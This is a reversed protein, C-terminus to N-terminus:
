ATGAQQLWIKEGNGSGHILICDTKVARFRQDLINKGTVPILILQQEVAVMIEAGKDLFFYLATKRNCLLGTNEEAASLKVQGPNLRVTAIRKAAQPIM